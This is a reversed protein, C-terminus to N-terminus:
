YFCHLNKQAKLRYLNLKYRSFYIFNFVCLRQKKPLHICYFKGQSLLFELNLIFVIIEFSQDEARYFKALSRTLGTSVLM